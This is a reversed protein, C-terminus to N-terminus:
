TKHTPNHTHPQLSVCMKIAPGIIGSSNTATNGDVMNDGASDVMGGSNNIGIM